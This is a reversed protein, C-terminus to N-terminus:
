QTTTNTRHQHNLAEHTYATVLVRLPVNTLHATILLRCITAALFYTKGSGPPGWVITLAQKLVADYIESQSETMPCRRKVQAYSLETMRLKLAPERLGFRATECLLQKALTPRGRMDLEADKRLRATLKQTNSDVYRPQLM